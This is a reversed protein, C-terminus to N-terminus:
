TVLGDSWAICPTGDLESRGMLGVPPNGDVDSCGGAGRLCAVRGSRPFVRLMGFGCYPCEAAVRLPREAEDIAPLQMIALTWRTVMVVVGRQSAEPVAEVLRTIATLTSGTQSMPPRETLRSSTESILEAKLQRIGELADFLVMAVQGNWPPRSSPQGRTRTSTDPQTTLVQARPLWTELEACADRVDAATV